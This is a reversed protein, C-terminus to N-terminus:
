GDGLRRRDLRRLPAQELSNCIMEDDALVSRVRRVFAVRVVRDAEQHVFQAGATWLIIARPSIHSSGGGAASADLRSRAVLHPLALQRGLRENGRAGAVLLLSRWIQDGAVLRCARRRGLADGYETESMGPM